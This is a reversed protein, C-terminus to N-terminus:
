GVEAKKGLNVRTDLTRLKLAYMYNSIFLMLHQQATSYLVAFLMCSYFDGM